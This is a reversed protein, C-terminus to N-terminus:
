LKASQGKIEKLGEKFFNCYVWNDSGNTKEVLLNIFIDNGNVIHHACKRINNWSTKIDFDMHWWLAIDDSFFNIYMPFTSDNYDEESIFEIAQPVYKRMVDILPMNYFIKMLFEYKDKKLMHGELGAAVYTGSWENSKRNVNKIEGIYWYEDKKYIVDFPDNQNETFFYDNEGLNWQEALIKFKDRGMIEAKTFTNETNTTDTHTM